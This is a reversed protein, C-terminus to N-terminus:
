PVLVARGTVEVAELRKLVSMAASLPHREVTARIRGAAALALVEHLDARTGGYPKTITVGWPLGVAAAPFPLSGGALGVTSIHGYSSVVSAGLALTGDTGVFDLVVEAGLGRTLGLVRAAADPGAPVTDDAGYGRAAALRSEDVDVAVIRSSTVARLIQVAMHGLGGVGIVVATASPTLLARCRDIAHYPTLAADALPAADVPDLRGLPVLCRAPAVLYEAMAGPHGLGPGPVMGRPFRECANEAGAACRRCLGCGWVIYCIVPEGVTWGTVQPGLAAVHGAPEHGLTMPYPLVQTRLLHLDSHCVGAGAVKVLVEGARPEPVEVDRVEGQGSAVLQFAKM